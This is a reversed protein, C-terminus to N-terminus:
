YRKIKEIQEHALLMIYNDIPHSFRNCPDHLILRQGKVHKYRSWFCSPPLQPVPDTNIIVRTYNTHIIDSCSWRFTYNGSKPEGFTIIQIDVHFHPRLYYSEFGFFTSMVGGLSHGVLFLKSLPKIKFQIDLLDYLEQRFSKFYELFGSHVRGYKKDGIKFQTLLVQADLIADHFTETGKFAVFIIKNIEDNYIHFNTHVHLLKIMGLDFDLTEDKSSYATQSLVACELIM